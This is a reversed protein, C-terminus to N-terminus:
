YQKYFSEPKIVNNKRIKWYSHSKSRKLILEDRGYLRMIIGFPSFILYFIIGIVIPSIIKGLLLGFMMWLKNLPLLLTPKFITIVIFFVSLILLIKSINEKNHIYFYLSLFLFIVTFLYGFKKNSPLIIESFKM